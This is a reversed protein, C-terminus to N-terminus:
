YALEPYVIGAEEIWAETVSHAVKRPSARDQFDSRM